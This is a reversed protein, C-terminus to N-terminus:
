YSLLGVNHVELMSKLNDVWNQRQDNNKCKFELTGQATELCFRTSDEVSEEGIEGMGSCIGYVVCKKKKSFAGGVHKSKIKVMVQSSKNIYVSVRKWQFTGKRTRHLLDGKCPLDHIVACTDTIGRECPIVAANNRLQKPIRAKLATAGRLATAAAATLTILDGPTMVDIASKIVNAVRDHDAGMLEATEICHSALLKTASALAGGMKTGEFNERTAAVAALASAVSAVSLAAHIRANDLREREKKKVRNTTSNNLDKHHHFWKAVRVGDAGSTIKKSVLTELNKDSNKDPFITARKSRASQLDGFCISELVVHDLMEDEQLNEVLGHFVDNSWALYRRGSEM